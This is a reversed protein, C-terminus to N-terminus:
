FYSPRRDLHERQAAPVSRPRPCLHRDKRFRREMRPRRMGASIMTAPKADNPHNTFAVSQSISSPAPLSCLSRKATSAFSSRMPLNARPHKAPWETIEERAVDGGPAHLGENVRKRYPNRCATCGQLRRVGQPAAGICFSERDAGSRNSGSFLQLLRITEAGGEKRSRRLKQSAAM